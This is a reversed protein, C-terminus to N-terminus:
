KCRPNEEGLERACRRSTASTYFGCGETEVRVTRSSGEEIYICSGQKQLVTFSGNKM